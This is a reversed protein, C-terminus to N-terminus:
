ERNKMLIHLQEQNEMITKSNHTKLDIGFGSAEAAAVRGRLKASAIGDVRGERVLLDKLISRKRFFRTLSEKIM